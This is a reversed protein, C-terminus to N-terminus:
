LKSAVKNPHEISDWYAIRGGKNVHPFLPESSVFSKSSCFSHIKKHSDQETIDVYLVPASVGSLYAELGARHQAYCLKLYEDSHQNLAVFGPFSVEFCREVDADFISKGNILPKRVSRLLRRISPLWQELPRELYMFKADPYQKHLSIYDVFIPTDALVQASDITTQSFATHAVKFGMNLFHLCASTTGTRPLSVIFIKSM